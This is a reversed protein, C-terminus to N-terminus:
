ISKEQSYKLNRKRKNIKKWILYGDKDKKFGEKIVIKELAESIM